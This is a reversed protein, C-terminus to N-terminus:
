LVFAWMFYGTLRQPSELGCKFNWKVKNKRAETFTIAATQDM